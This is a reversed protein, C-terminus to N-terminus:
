SEYAQPGHLVVNADDYVQKLKSELVTSPQLGPIGCRKCRRLLLTGNKLLQKDPINKCRLFICFMFSNVM